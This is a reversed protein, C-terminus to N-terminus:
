TEFRLRKDKGGHWLPMSMRETFQPFMLNFSVTIRERASANTPVDHQLWAPFLVLRGPKGEVQILNINFANRKRPPPVIVDVQARPDYFRTVNAKPGCQVYYIGAFYNNPHSHVSHSAGPPNINAWMGTFVM